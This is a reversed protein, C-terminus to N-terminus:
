INKKLHIQIIRKNDVLSIKFNFQSIDINEYKKPIKGFKKLLFGGITDVEHNNFNTKFFKNFQSITTFGNIKYNNQDIKEINKKYENSHDFEDEIKGVILELIDEITVLGSIIGFEDIVIAMHYKKFQFEKLMTNAFKTEPVIIAPRLLNKISKCTPKQYILSLFDKAMLIGAISNQHADLVPFRSHSSKTIIKFCQEISNNLNLSIIKPRPIMIEKLRKTSIGIVGTIMDLTDSNIQNNKKLKKIFDLLNNSKKKSLISFQHLIGHLFSKKKNNKYYKNKSM